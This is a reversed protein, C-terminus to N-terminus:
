WYMVTYPKADKTDKDVKKWRKKAPSARWYEHFLSEKAIPDGVWGEEKYARNFLRSGIHGPFLTASPNAEDYWLTFTKPLAKTKKTKKAKKM